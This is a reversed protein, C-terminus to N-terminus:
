NIVKQEERFVQYITSGYKARIFSMDVPKTIRHTSTGWHWKSKTASWKFGLEKLQNRIVITEPGYVWIWSGVVEITINAKIKVLENLIRKLEDESFDTSTDNEPQVGKLTKVLADYESNIQQMISTTDKNPNNDPHYKILLEKYKQRLEDITKINVFWQM